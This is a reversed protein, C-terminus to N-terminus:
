VLDRLEREGEVRGVVLASGRAGLDALVRADDVFLLARDAEGPPREPLGSGDPPEMVEAHVLQRLAEQDRTVLQAFADLDEIRVRGLRQRAAELVFAHLLEDLVLQAEAADDPALVRRGSGAGGSGAALARSRLACRPGFRSGM